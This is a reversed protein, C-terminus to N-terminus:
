KKIKSNVSAPRRGTPGLEPEPPRSAGPDEMKNATLDSAFSIADNRNLALGSQSVSYRYATTFNQAALPGGQKIIEEAKRLADGTTLAPGSDSRLFKLIEIFPEGIGGSYPEGLRAIRAAFTACKPKPLDLDRAQTCYRVLREFDTRAGVSDGSFDSVLSHALQLSTRLDLDMLGPSFATKFVTIFTDTENETRRAFDLATELSDQASLEAKILTTAVRIFRRAAGSCGYAVKRALARSKPDPLKFETMARLFELSTIFERTTGCHSDQYPGATPRGNSAAHLSTLPIAILFSFLPLCRM